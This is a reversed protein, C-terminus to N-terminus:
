FKVLAFDESEMGGLHLCKNVFEFPGKITHSVAATMYQGEPTMSKM